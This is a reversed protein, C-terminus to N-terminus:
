TSQAPLPTHASYNHRPSLWYVDIGMYLPSINHAMYSRHPVHFYWSPKWYVVYAAMGFGVSGAYSVVLGTPIGVVAM